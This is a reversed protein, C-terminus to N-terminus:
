RMLHDLSINDQIQDHPILAYRWPKGGHDVSHKTARECWEVAVDRKAVVDVDNMKTAMKPELILFADPTEAIFDPVYEMHDNGNLYYMQLQGKAPRLWKEAERELIVALRREADSQFRAVTTLCKSFGGFVYRAM